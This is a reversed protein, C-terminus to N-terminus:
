GEELKNIKYNLGQIRTETYTIEKQLAADPKKGDILSELNLKRLQLMKLEEKAAKARSFQWEAVFMGIHYIPNMWIPIIGLKFPDLKDKGFTSELGHKNDETIVIDPVDNIKKMLAGSDSTVANFATCFNLFNAEIWKIEAPTLAESLDVGGDPYEKTEMIYVYNLFKRSYKSVFAVAEVYQLLNAKFYTLGSGSLEQQYTKEVLDNVDDLNSVIQKFSKYIVSVLNDNSSHKVNRSFVSFMQNLEVSQFKHRQLLADALKYAPQTFETIEAKTIRCDETVQDKKMSPLLSHILKQMDM